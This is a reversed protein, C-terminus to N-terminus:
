VAAKLLFCESTSGCGQSKRHQPEQVIQAWCGSWQARAPSHPWRVQTAAWFVLRPENLELDCSATAPRTSRVSICVCLCIIEFVALTSSLLLTTRQEAFMYTSMIRLKQERKCCVCCDRCVAGAWMLVFTTTMSSRTVRVARSQGNPPAFEEYKGCGATLSVGSVYGLMWSASRM